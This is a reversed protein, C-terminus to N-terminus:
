VANLTALNGRLKTVMANYALAAEDETLFNGVLMEKGHEYVRARWKKLKKNFSVGKYKSSAGHKYTKKPTNLCNERHSVLRLNEKRCDLRNRNIHDTSLGSNDTLGLVFRHLYIWKARNEKRPGYRERRVAYGKCYSWRWKSVLEFDEDDVLATCGKSIQLERM